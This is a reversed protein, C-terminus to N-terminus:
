REKSMKQKELYRSYFKLSEVIFDEIEYSKINNPLYKKIKDKDFKYKEIQNPKQVGLISNIIDSDLTKNKSLEKLKQAQSLSPTAVNYAIAKLLMKQEEINLFSLEVGIRLGIKPELKLIDNDVMQLFEPILYTLRIYRQIQRGSEGHEKGIIDDTRFKTVVPRLTKIGQHKIAEMRMKYAFAKESPLIKERQKNSDVMIITAEDDTLDRVICPIENLGLLKSALKRRHGSVMEYKGNEKKRVITPNLVGKENISEKLQELEDDDEVKFPHNKFDDISDIPINVVKELHSDDRESQTSFLDDLKELPLNIKQSM